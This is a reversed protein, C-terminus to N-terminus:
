AVTETMMPLGGRAAAALMGLPVPTSPAEAQATGLGALPLAGLAAILEALVAARALGGARSMDVGLIAAARTLRDLRHRASVQKLHGLTLGSSPDILADDDQAMVWGTPYPHDVAIEAGTRRDHSLLPTMRALEIRAEAIGLDSAVALGAAAGLRDAVAPRPHPGAEGAVYLGPREPVRGDADLQPTFGRRDADFTLGVGASALLRYDAVMGHGVGVTDCAIDRVEGRADTAILREVRDIGEVRLRTIGTLVPVDRGVLRLWRSLGTGPRGSDAGIPGRRWPDPDLDIVATLRRGARVLRDAVEYLGPGGGILVPRLGLPTDGAKEPARYLTGLDFVGALHSGPLPIPRTEAGTALVLRDFGLRKIGDRGSLLLSNDEIAWAVHGTILKVAARLRAARGRFRLFDVDGAPSTPDAESAAVFARGGWDEGPAVVVPQLGHALLKETAALGAPGAGVVVVRRGAGTSPHHTRGTGTLPTGGPPTAM